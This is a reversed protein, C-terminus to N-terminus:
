PLVEKLLELIQTETLFPGTSSFVAPPLVGEGPENPSLIYYDKTVQVTTCEDPTMLSEHLKEGPRLGINRLNCIYSQSKCVAQILDVIKVKPMRLIFTEGGKALNLSNLVLKAAQPITMCFRTMGEHTLPIDQKKQICDLIVPIISGRSALVNGFRVSYMIPEAINEGYATILKEALLKSAGMANTPSVAKDTSVLVLKQVGCEIAANIVNLTGEVNTKVMEAPNYEGIPVHKLAACHIVVDVAGGYVCQGDVHVANSMATKVRQFDRVDGLFYRIHKDGLENRLEFLSNEDNSLVRITCPPGKLLQRVIESGISGSGGTILYVTM